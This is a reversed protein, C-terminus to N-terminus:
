YFQYMLQGCAIEIYYNGPRQLSTKLHLYTYNGERKEHNTSVEYISVKLYEETLHEGRPLWVDIYKVDPINLAAVTMFVSRSPPSTDKKYITLGM